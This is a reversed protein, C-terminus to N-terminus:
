IVLSEHSTKNTNITDLINDANKYNINLLNSVNIIINDNLLTLSKSLILVM